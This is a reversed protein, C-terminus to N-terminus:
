RRGAAFSDRVEEEDGERGFKRGIIYRRHVPTTRALSLLLLLLLSM